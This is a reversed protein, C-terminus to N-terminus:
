QRLDPWDKAIVRCGCARAEAISSGGPWSDGLALIYDSSLLINWYEEAEDPVDRDLYGHYTIQKTDEGKCGVVDLFFDRGKLYELAAELNDKHWAPAFVVYRNGCATKDKVSDLVWGPVDIPLGIYEVKLGKDRLYKTTAPYFCCIRSARRMRNIQRAEASDWRGWFYGLTWDHMLEVPVPIDGSDLAFTLAVIKDCGKSAKRVARAMLWSGLVTSEFELKKYDHLMNWIAGLWHFWFDNFVNFTVVDNGTARLRKLIIHPVGSWTRFRTADGKSVLLIKM